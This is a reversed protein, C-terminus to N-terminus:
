APPPGELAAESTRTFPSSPGVIFYARSTMKLVTTPPNNM